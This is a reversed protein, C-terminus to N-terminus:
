QWREKGGSFVYEHADRYNLASGSEACTFIAKKCSDLWDCSSCEYKEERCKEMERITHTKIVV